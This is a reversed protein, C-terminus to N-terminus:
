SAPTSTLPFSISRCRFASLFLLCSSVFALTAILQSLFVRRENVQMVEPNIARDSQFKFYRYIMIDALWIDFIFTNDKISQKCILSRIKTQSLYLRHAHCAIHKIINIQPYYIRSRMGFKFDRAKFTASNVANMCVAM